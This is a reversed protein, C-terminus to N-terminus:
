EEEEEDEPKDDLWEGGCIPCEEPLYVTQGYETEAVIVLGDTHNGCTRTACWVTTTGRHYNALYRDHAGPPFDSM